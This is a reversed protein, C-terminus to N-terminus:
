REYIREGKRTKEIDRGRMTYFTEVTGDYRVFAIFQRKGGTDKEFSSVYARQNGQEWIEAPDTLADEARAIFRARELDHEPNPNRRDFV